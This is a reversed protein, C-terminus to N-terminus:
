KAELIVLLKLKVLYRVTRLIITRYMNQRIPIKMRNQTLNLNNNDNHIDFDIKLDTYKEGKM